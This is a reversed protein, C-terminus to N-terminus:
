QIFSSVQFKNKTTKKQQKKNTKKKNFFLFIQLVKLAWNWKLWARVAMTVMTTIAQRNERGMMPRYPWRCNWDGMSPTRPLSQEMSSLKRDLRRGVTYWHTRAKAKTKAERSSM